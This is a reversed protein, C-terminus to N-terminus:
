MAVVYGIAAMVGIGVMARRTVKEKALKQEVTSVTRALKVPRQPRVDVEDEDELEEAKRKSTTMKAADGDLKNAEEVMATAQRILETADEPERLELHDAPVDIKVNTTKTEVEGNQEVTEQVEIRVTEQEKVEGSVSESAVSESVTTGNEIINQLASSATTIQTAEVIEETQVVEAAKAARTSRPKRPTAIKRSPTAAMSKSPSASRTSRARTSARLTPPSPLSIPPSAKSIDFRPPMTIRTAREGKNNKEIPTPDLLAEIWYRMGYEDSLRLAPTFTM